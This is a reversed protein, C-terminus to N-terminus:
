IFWWGLLFGGARPDARPPKLLLVPKAVQILLVIEGAITLQRSGSILLLFRMQAFPHPKAASVASRTVFSCCKVVIAAAALPSKKLRKPTSAWAHM